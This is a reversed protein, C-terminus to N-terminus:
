RFGSDTPAAPPSIDGAELLITKGDLNAPRVKAGQFYVDVQALGSSLIKFPPAGYFSAGLNPDITKNQTKGSADVVCVVQKTKAQVYVLDAPKRPSSPKYSPVIADAAPCAETNAPVDSSAQVPIPAAAMLPAPAPPTVPESVKADAIPQEIVEEKVVIIEEPKEPFFRPRLNVVSFVVVSILSFWIFLRKKPPQKPNSAGLASFTFTAKVPAVKINQKQEPEQNQKTEAVVLKKSEEPIAAIEKKLEVVEGHNFADEESLGLLKAVKKAATVKIQAGYFSGMEGNEIQEIQHKSLCAQGALDKISLGLKERAKTFAGNRIEPLKSKPNM